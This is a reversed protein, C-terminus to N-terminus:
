EEPHNYLCACLICCRSGQQIFIACVYEEHRGKEVSVTASMEQQPKFHRIDRDFGKDANQMRFACGRIQVNVAQAMPRTEETSTLRHVQPIRPHEDTRAIVGIMAWENGSITEIIEMEPGCLNLLVQM